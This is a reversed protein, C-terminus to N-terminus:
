EIFRSSKSAPIKHSGSTERTKLTGDMPALFSISKELLAWVTDM